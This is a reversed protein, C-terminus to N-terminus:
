FTPQIKTNRYTQDLEEWTKPHSRLFGQALSKAQKVCSEHLETEVGEFILGSKTYAGLVGTIAVVASSDECNHWLFSKDIKIYDWPIIGLTLIGENGSSYFDDLWIAVGKSKLFNINKIIKENIYSHKIDNIELAFDLDSLLTLDLIFNDDMLCSLTINVSVPKNIRKRKAYLLQKLCVNKIVEDDINSFFMENDLVSIDNEVRSLFELYKIKTTSPDYIPQLLFGFTIKMNDCEVLVGNPRSIYNFKNKM